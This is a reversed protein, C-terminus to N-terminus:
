LLATFTSPHLLICGYQPNVGFLFYAHLRVINVLLQGCIYDYFLRGRLRALVRDCHNWCHEREPAASEVVQAALNTMNSSKHPFLRM